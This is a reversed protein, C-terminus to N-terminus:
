FKFDDLSQGKALADAIWKPQRGRGTWTQSQDAPNRYRPALAGAGLLSEESLGAQRAIGLIQERAKSVEHQQRAKIEQRVDFELGKLEALNYTSLDFMPMAAKRFLKRNSEVADYASRRIAAARCRPAIGTRSSAFSAM